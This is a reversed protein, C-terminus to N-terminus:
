GCGEGKRRGGGKWFFFFFVSDGCSKVSSLKMQAVLTLIPTKTTLKKKSSKSKKCARTEREGERLVNERIRQSANKRKAGGEWKM